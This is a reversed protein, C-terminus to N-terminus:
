LFMRQLLEGNMPGAKLTESDDPFTSSAASDSATSRQVSQLQRSWRARAAYSLPSNNAMALRHGVFMDNIQWDSSGTEPATAISEMPGTALKIETDVVTSEAAEMEREVDVVAPQGNEISPEWLFAGASALLGCVMGVLFTPVTRRNCDKHTPTNAAERANWGCQYFLECVDTSPGTPVCQKLQTEFDSLTM